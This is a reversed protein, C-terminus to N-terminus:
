KLLYMIIDNSKIMKHMEKVGEWDGLLLGTSFNFHFFVLLYTLTFILLYNFRRVSGAVDRFKYFFLLLPFLMGTMMIRHGIVQATLAIGFYVLPIVSMKYLFSFVEDDDLEPNQTLRQKYYTNLLYYVPLLLAFSFLGGGYSSVLDGKLYDVFRVGALLKFIINILINYGVLILLSLNVIRRFFNKQLRLLYLFPIFIILSYHSCIAFAFWCIAVIRRRAVTSYYLGLIVAYYGLFYRLQTGYFIFILPLYLLSILFVNRNFKSVLYVYIFSYVSIFSIHLFQYTYGYKRIIAAVLQFTPEKDASFDPLEIWWRYYERDPTYTIQAFVIYILILTLAFLIVRGFEFKELLFSLVLVFFLIIIIYAM